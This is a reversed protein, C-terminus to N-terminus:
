RRQGQAEDIARALLDAVGLRRGWEQMRARDLANGQVRLIAVVDRWQRDSVEGGRRYWELKRLASHEATDVFMAVPPEGGVVVRERLRLREANFPDPGAVYVDVKVATEIHIVNFFQGTRVAERAADVSVYFDAGLAEVLVDIDRLSLAAVVDIDNTSRPEGHVSSALSGGVLYEIALDELIGTFRVAIAIPDPLTEPTM